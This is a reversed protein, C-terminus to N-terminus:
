GPPKLRVAMEIISKSTQEPEAVFGFREYFGVATVMAGVSVAKRRECVMKNLVYRMLDTGCPSVLSGLSHIRITDDDPNSWSIAGNIGREDFSAATFVGVDARLAASIMEAADSPKIFERVYKYLTSRQHTVTRIDIM